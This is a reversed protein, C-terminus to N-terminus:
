TAIPFDPGPEREDVDPSDLPHEPRIRECAFELHIASRVSGDPGDLFLDLGSVNQYLFGAENLASIIASLDARRVLLEVDKTNRVAELDVRAVWAGVANGGIVAFPM